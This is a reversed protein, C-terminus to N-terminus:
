KKSPKIKIFSQYHDPTYYGNNHNDTVIRKAGRNKGKVKPYIDWEQYSINKGNSNKIPLLKEFNNFKRGGVYGDPASQNKIVYAYMEIAEAPIDEQIGTIDSNPIDEPFVVQSNKSNSKSSFAETENEHIFYGALAGFCFIAVFLIVKKLM